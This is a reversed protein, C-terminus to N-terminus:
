RRDPRRRQVTRRARRARGARWPRGGRRSPRDPEGSRRQTGRLVRGSSGPQARLRRDRRAGRVRGASGAGERGGGADGTAGPGGREASLDVTRGGLDLADALIVWNFGALAADPQGSDRPSGFNRELRITRAAVVLTTGFPIPTPQAGDSGRCAIEDLVELLFEDNFIIEDRYIAWTHAV